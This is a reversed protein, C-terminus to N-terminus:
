KGSPRAGGSGTAAEMAKIERLVRRNGPADVALRAAADLLYGTIYDIETPRGALIDQLMSSRNEATDRAVQIADRHVRGAIAHYGAAESVAAIEDCLTQMQQRLEPTTALEGNRCGHVATLPNIVCNIALKRWLAPEIPDLWQCQLGTARWDRYWAPEGGGGPRGLLTDGRGTHRIHLKGLRLAAETTSCCFLDAGRTVPRVQDLYGMGNVALVVQAGAELRPAVARLAPLLQPAKTAVLLYAIGQTEEITSTTVSHRATSEGTEVQLSTASGAGTYERLLLTVRCGAGQLESGLLCGM